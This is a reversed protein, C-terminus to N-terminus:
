VVTSWLQYVNHLQNSGEFECNFVRALTNKKEAQFVALTLNGNILRGKVTRM